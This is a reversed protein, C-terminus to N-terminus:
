TSVEMNTVSDKISSSSTGRRSDKVIRRNKRLLILTFFFVVEFPEIDRNIFREWHTKGYQFSEELRPPFHDLGPIGRAKTSRYGSTLNPTMNRDIM